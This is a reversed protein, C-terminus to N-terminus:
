KRLKIFWFHSFVAKHADLQDETLYFERTNFEPYFAYLAEHFRKYQNAQLWKYFTTESMPETNSIPIVPFETKNTKDVEM